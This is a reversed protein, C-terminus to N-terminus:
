GDEDDIRDLIDDFGQWLGDRRQLGHKEIELEVLEKLTGIRIGATRCEARILEKGEDQDFLVVIDKPM